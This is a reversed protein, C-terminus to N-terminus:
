EEAGKKIDKTCKDLDIRSANMGHRVMFEAAKIMEKEILVSDDLKNQNNKM